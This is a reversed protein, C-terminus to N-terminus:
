CQRTVYHPLAWWMCLIRSKCGLPPFGFSIFLIFKYKCMCVSEWMYVMDVCLCVCICMCDCMELCVWMSPYKCSLLPFSQGYIPFEPPARSFSSSGWVQTLILSFDISFDNFYGVIVWFHFDVPWLDGWHSSPGIRSDGLIRSEFLFPTM